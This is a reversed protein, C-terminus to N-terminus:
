PPQRDKGFGVYMLGYMLIEDPTITVADLKKPVMYRSVISPVDGKPLKSASGRPTQRGREHGRGGVKGVQENARRRPGDNKPRGHGRGEEIRFM